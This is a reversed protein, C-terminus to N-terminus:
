EVLVMCPWGHGTASGLLARAKSFGRDWCCIHGCPAPGARPLHSALWEETEVLTPFTLPEELKRGRVSGRPFSRGFVLLLSTPPAKRRMAKSFDTHTKQKLFQNPETIDASCFHPTEGEGSDTGEPVASEREQFTVWFSGVALPSSTGQAWGGDGSSTHEGEARLVVPHSLGQSPRCHFGDIM